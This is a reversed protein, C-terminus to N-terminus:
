VPKAPATPDNPDIALKAFFALNKTGDANPDIQKPLDGLQVSISYAGGIWIDGAADTAITTSSQFNSDGYRQAWMAKGSPDLDLLFLDKGGVDPIGPGVGFDVTGEFGGTVIIHDSANVALALGVHGYIGSFRTDAKYQKDWVCAGNADL